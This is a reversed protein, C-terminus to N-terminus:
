YQAPKAEGEAPSGFRKALAESGRAVLSVDAGVLLFDVGAELYSQAVQPDFANIGVPKGAAHAAAIVSHAAAVVDPHSQQGLLGMSAALDSPGIFVADVGEVALIEAVNDVAEMSEIQITVSVHTSAEQLYGPIRGWRGSRALASGVGRIGRPPYSAATVAAEAEAASSIMPVVINQSGLDLIQKILVPDAAPVRIAATIPYAAIAQLQVQMDMLSLPSHEADLLLWDLGSGACIEAMVPSGSCLWMGALASGGARRRHALHQAFTPKLPLSM